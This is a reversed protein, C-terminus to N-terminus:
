DFKIEKTAISFDDRTSDGDLTTLGGVGTWPTLVSSEDLSRDMNISANISADVDIGVLQGAFKIYDAQPIPQPQFRLLLEIINKQAVAKKQKRALDIAMECNKTVGYKDSGAVLLLKVMQSGGTVAAHHLACWGKEDQLDVSAGLTLLQMVTKIKGRAACMMLATMGNGDVGDVLMGQEECWALRRKNERVASHQLLTWGNSDASEDITDITAGRRILEKM